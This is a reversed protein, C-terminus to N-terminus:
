FCLNYFISESNSDIKKNAINHATRSYINSCRSCRPACRSCVVVCRSYFTTNQVIRSYANSYRSCRPAFRSCVGDCRSYLTSDARYSFLRQLVSLLHTLLPLLGRRLSFLFHPRHSVLIFTPTGLAVPHADLAFGSAVLIFLPTQVIRSYANSYRSCVGVCRSYFTPDTRYSFLRQLVSLLPTRMSLLGRRLSFLFHPRHSVLIFTPTGLTVPYVLAVTHADLAVLLAVLAVAMAVIVFAM